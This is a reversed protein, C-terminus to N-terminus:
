IGGDNKKPQKRQAIQNLEKEQSKKYVAMYVAPANRNGLWSLDLVDKWLFPETKEKKYAPDMIEYETLLVGEKKYGTIIAVHFKHFAIVPINKDIYDKIMYSKILKSSIKENNIIENQYKWGNQPNLILAMRPSVMMSPLIFDLNYFKKVVNTQTTDEGYYKHTAEAAAAWCWWQGYQDTVLKEKNLISKTIIQTKPTKDGSCSTLILLIILLINKM